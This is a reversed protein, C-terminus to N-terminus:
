RLGRERKNRFFGAVGRAVSAFDPAVVLDDGIWKPLKAKIRPSSYRRDILLICAYDNAHRIARGISQNVARMCLNQCMLLAKTMRSLYSKGRVNRSLRRQRRWSPIRRLAYARSARRLWCQCFTSWGHSCVPWSQRLFQHRGTLLTLFYQGLSV